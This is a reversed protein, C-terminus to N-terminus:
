FDKTMEGINRHIYMLKRDFEVYEKEFISLFVINLTTLFNLRQDFSEILAKSDGSNLPPVVFDGFQVLSGAGLFYSLESQYCKITEWQARDLRQNIEREEWGFRSRIVVDKDKIKFRKTAYGKVVLQDLIELLEDKDFEEKNPETASALEEPIVSDPPPAVWDTTSVEGVDKIAPTKTDTTDTTSSAARNFPDKTSSISM